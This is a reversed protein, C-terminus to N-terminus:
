LNLISSSNNESLIDIMGDLHEEILDESPMAVPTLDDDVESFFPTVDPYYELKITKPIGISGKRKNITKQLLKCNPLM